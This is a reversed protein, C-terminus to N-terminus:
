APTTKANKRRSKKGYSDPIKHDIQKNRKYPTAPGRFSNCSRCVPEVNLPKHYNRHDYVEAKGGCDLCIYKSPPELLGEKIAKNVAVIAKKALPKARQFQTARRTARAATCERCYYAFLNKKPEKCSHCIPFVFPYHWRM